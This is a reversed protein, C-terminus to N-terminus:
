CLCKYKRLIPFAIEYNSLYGDDITIIFPKEPLTSNGNEYQFLKELSISTYKSALLIKIDEEFKDGTTRCEMNEVENNVFHHYCLIPCKVVNIKRKDM